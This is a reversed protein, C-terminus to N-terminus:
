WYANPIEEQAVLLVEGWILSRLEVLNEGKM